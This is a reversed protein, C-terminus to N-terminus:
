ACQTCGNAFDTGIGVNGDQGVTLVTGAGDDTFTLHGSTSDREIDWYATDTAALRIGAGAIGNLIELDQSPSLRVLGLVEQVLM